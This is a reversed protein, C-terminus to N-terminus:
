PNSITQPTGALGYPTLGFLNVVDPSGNGYIYDYNATPFGGAYYGDFGQMGRHFYQKAPAANVGGAMTQAAGAKYLFPNVNGQRGAWQEYLALAGVFEPSSVSTGITFYYGGGRLGVGYATLVSSDDASCSIANGDCFGPANGNLQSFGLGGVQMGVDPVTRATTSGTNVLAQYAPRPFISSIGGGAAWYGGSVTAGLGYIDYPYEPDGFASERVYTSNLGPGVSTVLNGGGVATVYPDDAPSSVGLGFTSNVGPAYDAGPCMVSGNDGSSASFTVGQLNGQAFIQHLMMLIYTYDTGGNYPATYELECGGFSSNVIAYANTEVIETYGDAISADSLDPISVLTVAAGPAGGTVQQTDLAAEFSGPGGYSGGGDVLVIGVKPSPRHTIANFKEHNFAYEVDHPFILDSMLIAVHVDKGDALVPKKGVTTLYSPYSYAQKDDDFWYSGTATYRNDPAVAQPGKIATTRRQRVPSFAIVTAGQSALADPLVPKTAAVARTLGDKTTVANLTTHLFANVHAADGSVHFGRSHTATVTLGAATAAAKAAAVQAGTPGFQAAFQAPTLWQHYQAAGPTQQAVLLAEMAATNRLPLFIEFHVSTAPAMATVTAGAELPGALAPASLATAAALSLLFKLRVPKVMRTLVDSLTM